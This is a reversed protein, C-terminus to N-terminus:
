AAGPGFACLGSACALSTVQQRAQAEAAESRPQQFFPQLERKLTDEFVRKLTFELSKAGPSSADARPALPRSNGKTRRLEHGQPHAPIGVHLGVALNSVDFRNEYM